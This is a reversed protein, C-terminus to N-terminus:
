STVKLRPMTMNKLTEIQELLQEAWEEVEEDEDHKQLKKTLKFHCRSMIRLALTKMEKITKTNDVPVAMPCDCVRPDTNQLEAALEGIELGALDDSADQLRDYRDSEERGKDELDLMAEDLHAAMNQVLEAALIMAKSLTTTEMQNDELWGSVELSTKKGLSRTNWYWPM